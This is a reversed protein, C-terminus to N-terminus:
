EHGPSEYQDCGERRQPDNLPSAIAGQPLRNVSAGAKRIWKRASSVANWV